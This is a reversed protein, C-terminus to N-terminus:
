LAILGEKCGQQPQLARQIGGDDDDSTCPSELLQLNMCTHQLTAYPYRLGIGPFQAGSSFASTSDQRACRGASRGGAASTLVRNQGVAKSVTRQCCMLLATASSFGAGVRRARCQATVSPQVGRM